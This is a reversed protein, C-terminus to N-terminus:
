GHMGLTDVARCTVLSACGDPQQQREALRAGTLLASFVRPLRSLCSVGGLWAVCAHCDAATASLTICPAWEIKASKAFVQEWKMSSAKGLKGGPDGERGFEVNERLMFITILVRDLCFKVTLMESSPVTRPKYKSAYEGHWHKRRESAAYSRLADSCVSIEKIIATDVLHLLQLSGDTLFVASQEWRWVHLQYVRATYQAIVTSRKSRSPDFFASHNNSNWDLHTGPAADGLHQPALIADRQSQLRGAQLAPPVWGAM